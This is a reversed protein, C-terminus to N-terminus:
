LVVEAVPELDEPAFEVAEGSKWFEEILGLDSKNEVWRDKFIRVAKACV